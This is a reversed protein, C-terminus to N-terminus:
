EAATPAVPKLAIDLDKEYSLAELHDRLDALSCEPPVTVRAKLIFMPAGTFPAATTDSELDDINVGFKGLRETILHVIGPADLSFSEVIYPRGQPLPRPPVTTKVTVALGTKEALKDQNRILNKIDAAGGSILMIVAFEGGLVSARSEEINCGAAEVGAAIDDMIGVRDTGLSTLVAFESGM